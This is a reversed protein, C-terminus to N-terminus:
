RPPRRFARRLFPDDFVIVTPRGHPCTTGGPTEVLRDLLRQQADPDLRDGFRVASHCAILAAVRHARDAGGEDEDLTDILEVLLRAPDASAGTAPIASCRITAPGFPEITFGCSALLGAHRAVREMRLADLELVVPLLLLQTHTGDTNRSALRERLEAYLVKEHAAHPDVLVVADAAAAVIWEGSVQGLARLPTLAALTPAAAVTETADAFVLSPPAGTSSADGLAPDTVVGHQAATVTASATYVASARLATWCARQVAAFVAREDRFRVERKAPHVNVDVSAPDVEVILVGYPHRGAPILGRYAEEAAVQLGRHHIRRGNVVLVIGGRAGRHASPASIAGTVAVTGPEAVDILAAAARPGFVARLAGRLSDGPSRLVVRGDNRCTIAVDPHALALDAAARVSAAGEAQASRLFRLRAPTSAFLECVEVRTGPPAATAVREVIQGGRVHLLAGATAGRVCSVLRLDSVAAISALAEGRFGLTRVGDLDDVREIKSTAHREVALEVDDAPIGHGDDSVEIRVLGGGEIVVEVRAAGADIANELLEKVV